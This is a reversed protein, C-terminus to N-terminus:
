QKRKEKKKRRKRRRWGTNYKKEGVDRGGEGREQKREGEREREGEVYFIL